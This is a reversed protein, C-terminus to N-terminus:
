HPKRAQIYVQHILNKKTVRRQDHIGTNETGNTRGNTREDCMQGVFLTWCFPSLLPSLYFVVSLFKKFVIKKLKKRRPSLAPHPSLQWVAFASIKKFFM